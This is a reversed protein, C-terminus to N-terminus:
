FDDTAERLKKFAALKEVSCIKGPPTIEGGNLQKYAVVAEEFKKHTRTLVPCDNVDEEADM